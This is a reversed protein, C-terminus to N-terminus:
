GLGPPAVSTTSRADDSGVIVTPDASRDTPLSRRLAPGVERDTLPRLLSFQKFVREAKTPEAVRLLLGYVAPTGLPSRTAIEELADPSFCAAILEEGLPKTFLVAANPATSEDGLSIMASGGTRTWLWGEVGHERPVVATASLRRLIPFRGQAEASGREVLGMQLMGLPLKLPERLMREHEFTAGLASLRLGDEGRRRKWSRDAEFTLVHEKLPNATGPPAFSSSPPPVSM